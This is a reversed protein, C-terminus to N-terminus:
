ATADTARSPGPGQGPGQLDMELQVVPGGVQQQARKRPQMAAEVVRAVAEFLAPEEEVPQQKWQKQETLELKSVQQLLAPEPNVTTM